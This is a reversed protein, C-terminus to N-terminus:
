PSRRALGVTVPQESKSDDVCTAPPHSPAPGRQTGAKGDNKRCTQEPGNDALPVQRDLIQEEASSHDVVPAVGLVLHGARRRTSSPNKVFM